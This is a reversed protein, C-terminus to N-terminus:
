FNTFNILGIGLIMIAIAILLLLQSRSGSKYVNGENRFYISTLPILEGELAQSVQGNKQCVLSLEERSAHFPSDCPIALLASFM